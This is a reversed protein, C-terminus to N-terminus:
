TDKGKSFLLKRVAAVEQETLKPLPLNPGEEVGYPTYHYIKEHDESALASDWWKYVTKKDLGTERICDAKRGNPYAARYEAVKAKATGSGKPRGAGERWDKKGKEECLIDRSARALKLHLDQKRGNRKNREIRVDTLKEIDEIVFNYYEKSYAEMASTIDEPKMPNDHEIKQLEKYAEQMDEKLKAKPVDCKCAYIAMCMLFFYRHGGKIHKIQRLWWEYLAYDKVKKKKRYGIDWKKANKRGEVVVRQYWEPYLEQAEERTMKSTRFRKQLDVRNEAKIVYRNLYDISVTDGTRFARLPVGHKENISGVMRFGQNISQYQISKVRSTAKYEWIKFTLDHKMSKLQLKINPFLDIPENFVYYLHVGTGSAVIFTPVPLSRLTGEELEFRHLLNRLEHEGVGDLDFIMAHMRQANELVNKNQRYALGGCVCNEQGEVFELYADEWTDRYMSYRVKYGKESDYVLFIANPHSFDTHQEDSRECDPFIETYFDCGNVEEFLTELLPLLEYYTSTLDM